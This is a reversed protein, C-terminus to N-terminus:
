ANGTRVARVHRQQPQRGSAQRGVPEVPHQRASKAEVPEEQHFKWFSDFAYWLLVYGPVQSLGLGKTITQRIGMAFLAAPFALKLDLRRGTLLSIRRDLDDMMAVIDVATTSRGAKPLELGLDSATQLAVIGADKLIALLDDVSATGPDYRVMMSGTTTNTEVQQVGPREELRTQAQQMLGSRRHPRRLRIRLRGPTDSIVQGHAEQNNM